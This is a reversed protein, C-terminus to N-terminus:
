PSSMTISVYVFLCQLILSVQVGRKGAVGTSYFTEQGKRLLGANNRQLDKCWDTRNTLHLKGSEYSLLICCICVASRASRRRDVKLHKNDQEAFMIFLLLLVNM